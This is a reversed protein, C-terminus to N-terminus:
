ARELIRVDQGASGSIAYLADNTILELQLSANAAVPIGNSTTVDTGGFYVTVTGANYVLVPYPYSGSGYGADSVLAVASTGVTVTRTKLAM